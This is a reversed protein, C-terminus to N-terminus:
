QPRLYFASEHLVLSFKVGTHSSIRTVHADDTTSTNHQLLLLESWACESILHGKDLWIVAFATTVSHTSM